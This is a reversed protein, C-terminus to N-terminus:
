LNEASWLTAQLRNPVNIKKYINYLHTKVTCPSICLEEAIEKNTAGSAVLSLIDVERPTLNVSKKKKYPNNKKRTMIYDAMIKRPIWLEGEFIASIGKLFVDETDHEYFFGHVGKHIIQKEIGLGPSLNFLAFLDESSLTDQNTEYELLCTHLNKGFCDWLILRNNEGEPKKGLRSFKQVVRCPAGAKDELFSALLSNQLRMAGVVYIVSNPPLTVPDTHSGYHTDMPGNVIDTTQVGSMKEPYLNISLRLTPEAEQCSRGTLLRIPM